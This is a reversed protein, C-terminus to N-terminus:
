KLFYQLYVGICLGELPPEGDESEHPGPPVALAQVKTFIGLRAFNDLFIKQNKIM